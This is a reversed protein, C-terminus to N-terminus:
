AMAMRDSVRAAAALHGSEEAPVLAAAWWGSEAARVAL